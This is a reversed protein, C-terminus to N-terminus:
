VIPRQIILSCKGFKERAKVFEVVSGSDNTMQVGAHCSLLLLLQLVLDRSKLPLCQVLEKLIVLEWSIDSGLLMLVHLFSLLSCFIDLVRKSEFGKSYNWGM